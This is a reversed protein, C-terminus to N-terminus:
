ADREDRNRRMALSVLGGLPGFGAPADVDPVPGPLDAGPPRDPDRRDLLLCVAADRWPRASGALRAVRATPALEVGALVVLDAEGAALMLDALDLLEATLDGAAALCTLPGTIGHNQSVQGMVATPVAQYCLLPDPARGAALQEAAVDLSTADGFATGLVLATRAGRGALLDAGPEGLCRRVADVLLPGFRSGVFGPVPPPEATSIGPVGGGHGPAVCSAALVRTAAPVPVARTLNATM